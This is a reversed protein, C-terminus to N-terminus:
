NNFFSLEVNYNQVIWEPTVKHWMNFPICHINSGDILWQFVKKMKTLRELCEDIKSVM